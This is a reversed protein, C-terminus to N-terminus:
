SGRRGWRLWVDMPRDFVMVANVACEFGLLGAWRAGPLFASDVWTKVLRFDYLDLVQRVARHISPWMWPQVHRSVVGWAIVPDLQHYFGGAAIPVDDVLLAWAPGADVIDQTFTRLAEVATLQSEQPELALLHETTLPEM